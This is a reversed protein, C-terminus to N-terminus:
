EIAVICQSSSKIPQHQSPVSLPYQIDIKFLDEGEEMWQIQMADCQQNTTLSFFYFKIIM